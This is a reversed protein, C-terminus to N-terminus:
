EGPYRLGWQERIADLTRMIALSEDLPMIESETRGERLCRMVEAAEYNYGNGVAPVDIPQEPKGDRVLTLASPKWWADHVKIHGTTGLMLAEHPSSTRIATTLVALRGGDYRMVIGAQEDVGTTGLQALSVIDAPAGLLMAVLSVPYIGVDLLAGGGLAPDFLRSQPDIEARFSFDARVQRVEGIAGEAILQRLKVIHPLFRTWIAEMLFLRRERALAIVEATDAANLTFPKECLVPKGARLCLLSHEKHFPHPTAVYVVDVDPDNALAEYSAYRRRVGYQEGFAAAREASRSGVAVIEADDLVSLGQSFSRAINGPGLIGWRINDM